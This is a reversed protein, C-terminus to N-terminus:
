PVIIKIHLTAFTQDPQVQFRLTQLRQHLAQRWAQQDLQTGSFRSDAVRGQRDIKLVLDIAGHYGSARLSASILRGFRNIEKQVQHHDEFGRASLVMVSVPPVDARSSRQPASPQLSRAAQKREAAAMPAADGLAARGPVQAPKSVRRKAQAPPHASSARHQKYPMAETWQNVETKHAGTVPKIKKKAVSKNVTKLAPQDVRKAQAPGMVPAAPGPTAATTTRLVDERVMRGPELRVMLILMVLALAGPLLWVPVNVKAKPITKLNALVKARLYDPVDEEYAQHLLDAAQQHQKLVAQCHRCTALHRKVKAQARGTLLNLAYAELQREVDKCSMLM